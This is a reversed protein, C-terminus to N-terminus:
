DINNFIEDELLRIESELQLLLKNYENDEIVKTKWQNNIIQLRYKISDIRKEINSM